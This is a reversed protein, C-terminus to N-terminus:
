RRKRKARKKLAEILEEQRIMLEKQEIIIEKLFKIKKRNFM